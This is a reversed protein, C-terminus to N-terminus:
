FDTPSRSTRAKMLDDIVPIINEVEIEDAQRRAERPDYNRANMVFLQPGERHKPPVIRHLPGIPPQEHEDIPGTIDITPVSFAEAIYIPGTDVSIFLSMRAICAKLEDLNFHTAMIVPTTDKLYHAMEQMEQADNKGGTIIIKANYREHVYDAVKAFKDRGWLKIKNGASPSIGVILDGANIHNEEFFREISRKAEESFGLHKTTDESTIGIPELLKFYERPAYHRMRHSKIVALRIFLRYLQTVYPSYGNEIQPVAILPIGALYMLALNLFNPSTMCGFNFQMSRIKKLLRSFDSDSVIYDDVDTNYKLLEKNSEAGLVVLKADPYARKVARFMPTTCVMDGLSSAQIVLIRTPKDIPKRAPGFVALKMAVRATITLKQIEKMLNPTNIKM